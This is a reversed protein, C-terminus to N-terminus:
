NSVGLQHFLWEFNRVDVTDLEVVISGGTPYGDIIQDEGKVEIFGDRVILENEEDVVGFYLYVPVDVNNAGNFGASGYLYEEWDDRDLRGFWEPSTWRKSKVEIYCLLESEVVDEDAIDGTREWEDTPYNRYVAIDPGYGVYCDDDDRNDTGYQVCTLGNAKLKSELYFQLTDHVTYDQKFTNNSSSSDTTTSSSM